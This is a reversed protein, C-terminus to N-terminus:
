TGQGIQERRDTRGGDDVDLRVELLIRGLPRFGVEACNEEAAGGAHM